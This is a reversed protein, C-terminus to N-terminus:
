IVYNWETRFKAQKGAKKFFRVYPQLLIYLESESQMTVINQSIDEMTTQTDSEVLVFILVVAPNFNTKVEKLSVTVCDYIESSPAPLTWHRIM